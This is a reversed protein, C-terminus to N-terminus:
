VIIRVGGLDQYEYTFYDHLSGVFIRNKPINHSESVDHVMQPNFEGQKEVYDINLHPYVGSQQLLPIFEKIQKAHVEDQPDSSDNCHVILVNRGAENQHIYSLTQFLREPTHVFVLYEGAIIKKFYKSLPIHLFTTNKTIGMLFSVLRDRYVFCIVFTFLPIFYLLFYIINSFNGLQGDVSIINGFLGILTCTGAIITILPNVRYPRKLDPRTSKLILNAIAFMSMVALFSIAYVGGLLSTNGQTVLLISVCFGFFASIIIPYSGQSNKKTLSIPLCEDLGMRNVLGSIGVFATLVAGCLVLFADIVMMYKFFDGGIVQAQFALLFNKNAEITEINNLSLAVLAVLPNFVIVGILMNRLTKKFVGKKQEEVFNASSEFGSVGLLSASFGLLIILGLSQLNNLNTAVSMKEVLHQTTFVVNEGFENGSKMIHILGLVVFSTLTIIHFSFIGLAVKASDKVGSIVLLAFAGLVAITGIIIASPRITDSLITTPIITSLYDVGAKSSIVATAVYSLITLVGATAALNKGTGNLLANYCGGNIPMAEVVERYVGKYLLLVLGVVFLIIPSYVGAIPIVIGSVYLVSSLIDNGCISTAFFQNLRIHPQSEKTAM